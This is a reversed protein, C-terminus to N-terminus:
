TLESALQTAVRHANAILTLTPNVSGNTPHLSGDCVTINATGWPAGLPDTASHEPTLGMRCTGASHETAVSRRAGHSLGPELLDVIGTCGAAELWQRCRHTLYKTNSLTLEHVARRMRVAPVGFRDRVQGDLLVRSDEHPVEQGIAMTGVVGNVAAKVDEKHEIGWPPAGMREVWMAFQLPYPAFSDFVVGGGIHGSRDHIFETSAVSHGPGRFTPVPTPPRGIVLSVGHGHLHRGVHGNGLGSALLLRPTEIAGAAVVVHDASVRIIQQSAAFGIDVARARQDEHIIRLVQGGQVLTARGTRLAAPIFTNHAGNRADVPCAHGMCQNCGVCAARGGWPLSNIAFPIPGWAWGQEKAARGLLARTPDGPLAPMPYGPHGPIRQTLAGTEGAVGLEREAWDYSPRLDDYTIPWDALTSGVFSGYTTSMAFDEPNFRWAMGQWLRTGGGLVMANLGWADGSDSGDVSWVSGDPEEVIRPNGKGPGATPRYVSMRKGHLHDGSLARDDLASGREVLLVDIGAEALVQAAVGGGPGGGIVIVSYHRRLSGADTGPAAKAPFPAETDFPWPRYGLHQWGGPATNLSHAYYGEHCVRILANLGEHVPTAAELQQLVEVRSQTPLARFGLDLLQSVLNHLAPMAWRLDRGGEDLLYREVGGLWGGPSDTTPILTECAAALTSWEVASWRLDTV